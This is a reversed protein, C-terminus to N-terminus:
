IETFTGSSAGDKLVGKNRNERESDCRKVVADISKDTIGRRISSDSVFSFLARLNQTRDM